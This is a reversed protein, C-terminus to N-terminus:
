VHARGIQATEVGLTCLTCAILAGRVSMGSLVLAAGLPVFLAVNALADTVRAPGCWYCFRVAAAGVADGGRPALTAWVILLLSLAALM